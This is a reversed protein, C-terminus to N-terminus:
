LLPPLQLVNPATSAPWQLRLGFEAGLVKDISYMIFAGALETQKM